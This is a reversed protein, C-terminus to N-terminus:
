SKDDLKRLESPSIGYTKKFLASFTSTHPFGFLTAITDINEDTSSLIMRAHHLREKRHYRYITDNYLEKFGKKLKDQNMFMASALEEITPLKKQLHRDIYFKLKQITEIDEKTKLIKLPTEKAKKNQLVKRQEKSIMLPNSEIIQSGMILYHDKLKPYQIHFLTCFLEQSLGKNTTFSMRFPCSQRKSNPFSKFEKRLVELDDQHILDFISSKGPIITHPIPFSTTILQNQTNLLFIYQVICRKIESRTGFIFPNYAHSLDDSLMNISSIIDEINDNHDSRPIRHTFNGSGMLLLVEKIAELRKTNEPQNM